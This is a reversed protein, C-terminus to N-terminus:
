WVSRGQGSLDLVAWIISAPVVALPLRHFYRSTVSGSPSHNHQASRPHHQPVHASPSGQVATGFGCWGWPLRGTLLLVSGAHSWCCWAGWSVQLLHARCGPAQGAPNASCANACKPRWGKGSSTVPPTSIGAGWICCVFLQWIAVPNGWYSVIAPM